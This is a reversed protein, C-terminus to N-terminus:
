NGNMDENMKKGFYKNVKNKSQYICRKVKRKEEKYAKKCTEKAEENTAALVEKRRVAVKVENNLWVSEPNKGGVRASSRLKRKYGNGIEGAGM